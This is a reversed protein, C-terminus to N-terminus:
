TLELAPQRGSLKCAAAGLLADTFGIEVISMDDADPKCAGCRERAEIAAQPVARATAASHAAISGLRAEGFAEGSGAVEVAYGARQLLGRLFACGTLDDQVVLATPVQAECM